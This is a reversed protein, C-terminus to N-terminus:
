RRRCLTVGKVGVRGGYDRALLWHEQCLWRTPYCAEVIGVTGYTAQLCYPFSLALNPYTANPSTSCALLLVVSVLIRTM